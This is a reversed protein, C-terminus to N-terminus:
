LPLLMDAPSLMQALIGKLVKMPAEETSAETEPTMKILTQLRKPSKDKGERGM